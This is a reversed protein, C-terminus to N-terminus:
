FFGNNEGLGLFAELDLLAQRYGTDWGCAFTDPNNISPILKKAIFVLKCDIYEQLTM